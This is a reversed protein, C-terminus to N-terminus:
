QLINTNLKVQFPSVTSRFPEPHDIKANSTSLTSTRLSRGCVIFPSEYEGYLVREHVAQFYEIEEVTHM